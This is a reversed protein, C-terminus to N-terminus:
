QWLRLDVLLGRVIERVETPSHFGDNKLVVRRVEVGYQQRLFEDRLQGLRRTKVAHHRPGDVEINVLRSVPVQTAREVYTHALL